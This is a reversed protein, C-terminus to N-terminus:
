FLGLTMSRPLTWDRFPRMPSISIESQKRCFLRFFLLNSLSLASAFACLVGVFSTPVSEYIVDMTDLAYKLMTADMQPTQAFSEKYFTILSGMQSQIDAYPTRGALVGPLSVSAYLGILFVGALLLATDSNSMHRTMLVYIIVAALASAGYLGALVAASEMQITGLAFMAIPLLMWYPKTRAGAYAWLAPAIVLVLPFFAAILAVVTALLLVLWGRQKARPPQQNSSEM